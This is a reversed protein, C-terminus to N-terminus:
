GPIPRPGTYGGIHIQLVLDLLAVSSLYNCLGGNSLSNVIITIAPHTPQMIQNAEASSMIHQCFALNITPVGTPKAKPATTATPATSTTPTGGGTTGGTSSVTCAAMSLCVSLAAVLMMFTRLTKM